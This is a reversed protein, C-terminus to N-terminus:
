IIRETAEKGGAKICLYLILLAVAVLVVAISSGMPVNGATMFQLVILNGTLMVKAGGLLLPVLWDGLAPIFVLITGALIGGKTLPLTVTLFRRFPTAGLDASAELLSPNLGVLSAYVPLVMFPLWSYVLGFMVAYPNFLIGLPSSILGLSLLTSNIFGAFGTITRLAYLRILYSTWSPIIVLFLLMTKWRGGRRAIFYAVPYGILLCMINTGFAFLLTRLLIRGYEGRWLALYNELTFIPLIEGGYPGTTLFSFYLIVGLPSIVFLIFWFSVPGVYPLHAQKALFKRIKERLNGPVKGGVKSTTQFSRLFMGKDNRARRKTDNQAYRLIEHREPCALRPLRM